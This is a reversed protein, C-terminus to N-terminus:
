VTTKTEPSLSGGNLTMKIRWWLYLRVYETLIVCLIYHKINKRWPATVFDKQLESSSKKYRKYM